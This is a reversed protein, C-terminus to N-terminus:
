RLAQLSIVRAPTRAQLGLHADMGTFDSLPNLLGLM